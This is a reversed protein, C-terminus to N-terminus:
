FSIQNESFARQMCTSKIASKIDLIAAINIASLIKRMLKAKADSFFTPTFQWISITRSRESIYRTNQKWIVFHVAIYIYIYSLANIAIHM